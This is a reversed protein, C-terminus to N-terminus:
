KGRSPRSSPRAQARLAASRREGGALSWSMQALTGRSRAGTVSFTGGTMQARERLNRLGSGRRRSEASAAELGVGDDQVQLTLNRAARTLKILV